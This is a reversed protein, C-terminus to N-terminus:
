FGPQTPEQTAPPAADNKEVWERVIRGLQAPVTRDEAKATRQVADYHEQEVQVTISKKAM